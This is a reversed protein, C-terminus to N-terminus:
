GTKAAVIILYGRSEFLEPEGFVARVLPEVEDLQKTVLYLRGSPKLLRHSHETFMQTISQQAYYPPNTLVVDFLAAPLSDPRETALTQFDNLGASRANLEALAIARVNSDIFTVHGDPQARRAAAIGTAGAGCGLDLIRDGPRIEAATLLARAGLDLRGYSFVGPRTVFRLPEGEDVRAQVVMEHRRRPRDNERHSWVATGEASSALASKGFVKKMLKPFFPDNEIPSLALFTGHPRLLHFGQEVMDIKLEREGRPPSPYLVTQFDQPLDWLDPATQVEATVGVAALEDRVRAAQYLDM